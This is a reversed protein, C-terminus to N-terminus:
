LASSLYYELVSYAYSYVLLESGSSQTTSMDLGLELASLLEGLRVFQQQSSVIRELARQELCRQLIDGDIHMMTKVITKPDPEIDITSDSDHPVFCIERSLMALNQIFRLFHWAEEHLISFQTLSGDIALGLIDRRDLGGQKHGLRPQDRTWRPRTRGSVFRRISAGLHARFVLQLTSAGLNRSPFWLGYVGCMPDSMLALRQREQLGVFSGVDISHLGNRAVEDTHIQVMHTASTYDFVVLSHHATLVHLYGDVVELSTAPSPLEYRMATQFKKDEVIHYEITKGFSLFLGNKDTTGCRPSGHKTKKYFQTWFRIQRSARANKVVVEQEASVILLRGHGNRSKALVVFWEYVNGKNTYKWTLLSVVKTDSNGLHTIYDLDINRENGQESVKRIPHSLDTGTTPDFFHLSPVGSKVVITVLAELRESYLIGMPTGGIPLYRPVPAPSPQIETILIHSGAIMIWTTNSYGPIGHLRAVSNITPSSLHPENTDTLWIRHIEEVCGAKQKMDPEKMLALGADNCVLTSPGTDFLAGAFVHSPSAGFHNTRIQTLFREPQCNETIQITFVEGNRMGVVIKDDGLCIISTVANTAMFGIDEDEGLKIEFPAQENCTQPKTDSQSPDIQFVALCLPDRRSLGALVCTGTSLTDISLANVEGKINFVQKLIFKSEDLIFVMIQFGSDSYVSLALASDTIAADTVTVVPSEIMDAIVQSYCGIPSVITVTSSTVQIVIDRTIYVALTTSLLDFAMLDQGRESVESLDHSIHLLASNEPLALLMFFGAEQNGEFNPIAWCRKIPTSYSLDLGIKAQIGYRLEVIAGFVDRGSSAFIREPAVMHGQKKEVSPPQQSLAHVSQSDNSSEKMLVLDVTPSWNPLLGIRKPNQRAQVSWIAGPGYDGGAVLLEGHPISLSAFSSDINCRLPGMYISAEIGSDGTIELCNVWGDERALYILDKGTHYSEERLPRTWATWMPAHTGHHWETDDRHGLEFPVFEPSGSLVDTCLAISNETIMLFQSCVTLPIIFLPLGVSEYLRQGAKEATLANQYQLSESEDWEYIALRSVGFRVTIVLLITHSVNESSPHLFDLQHIVGRVARAQVSRIPQIPLGENHQRRLEEISELQYVIFIDESCALALYGWDPSITMHFGPNELKGSSIPFHSSVFEWDGTATPSMFVFILEGSSLVLMLVQQFLEIDKPLSVYSPSSSLDTMEIDLNRHYNAHIDQRTTRLYDHTGMVRCNRITSNFNLKKAVPLLQKDVGLECIQVSQDGVLAVDNFRSSRLQVPLVWRIIPSEIITRTLVGFQPAKPPPSEVPHPRSRSNEGFLQDATITQTVWEDGDFVHTQLAAM